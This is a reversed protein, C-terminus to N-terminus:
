ARERKMREYHMAQIQQASPERSLVWAVVAGAGLWVLIEGPPRGAPTAASPEAGMFHSRALDRSQEHGVKFM